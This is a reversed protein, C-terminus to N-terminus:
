LSRENQCSRVWALFSPNPPVQGSGLPPSVAKTKLKFARFTTILLYYWIFLTAPDNPLGKLTVSYRIITLHRHQRLSARLM